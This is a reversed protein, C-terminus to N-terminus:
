YPNKVYPLTLIFSNDSIAGDGFRASTANIALGFHTAPRYFIDVYINVAAIPMPAGCGNIDTLPSQQWRISVQYPCADDGAMNSITCIDGELNFGTMKTILGVIESGFIRNIPPASATLNPQFVPPPNIGLNPILITNPTNAFAGCTNCENLCIDLAQNRAQLVLGDILGPPPALPDVFPLGRTKIISWVRESQLISYLNSRILLATSYITTKRQLNRSAQTGNLLFLSTIILASLAVITLLLVSGRDHRAMPPDTEEYNTKRILTHKM